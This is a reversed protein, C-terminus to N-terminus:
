AVKRYQDCLEALKRTRSDITFLNLNRNMRTVAGHFEYLTGTKSKSLELEEDHAQQYENFKNPALIGMDLADYVINKYNSGILPVKHLSDHWAIAENGQELVQDFARNGLMLLEEFNLGSTHKRFDIFDGKFQMNSCVTIHTGACLGVAFVKSISNRWGMMLDMGKKKIDLVWSAFVNMGNNKISYSESKIGVGKEKLVTDLSKIVDAHKVPHWTKTYAPAEITVIEKRTMREKSNFNRM